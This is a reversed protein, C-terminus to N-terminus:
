VNREGRHFRIFPIQAVGHIEPEEMQFGCWKLWRISVINRVDVYNELYNYARNMEEVYARSHKAFYLRM